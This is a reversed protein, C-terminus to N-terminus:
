GERKLVAVRVSSLAIGERKLRAAVRKRIANQVSFQEAFSRAQFFITFGLGGDVFGPSFAVGPAPVDAIGQVDVARRAEDALADEVRDIDADAAVDVRVSSAVQPSPLSYNTIIAKSLTANPIIVFNGNLTRLRTSRWGISEVYGEYSPDVRVFDGPRVPRDVVLYLGSFFNSLTDQLALAVALSSVGLATLAPALSIGFADSILVADIALGILWVVAKGVGTSSRAEPNSRGYAELSRSGVRIFVAVGVVAFAVSLVRHAVLLRPEALPALRLGVAASELFVAVGIPRPLTAALVDTVHSPRAKAIGSLWRAMAARTLIALLVGVVLSAALPAWMPLKDISALV